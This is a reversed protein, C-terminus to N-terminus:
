RQLRNGVTGDVAAALATEHKRQAALFHPHTGKGGAGRANVEVDM